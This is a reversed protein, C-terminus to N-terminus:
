AAPTAVDGCRGPTSQNTATCKMWTRRWCAACPKPERPGDRERNVVAATECTGGIADAAARSSTWCVGSRPKTWRWMRLGEAALPLLKRVVLEVVSVQGIQPWYVEAAIGHRVGAAFNESAASFSMQTWLPREQNAMLARVLGAFFAANALLTLLPRGPRSFGTRWEFTPFTRRSTM